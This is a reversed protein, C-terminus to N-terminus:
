ATGAAVMPSEPLGPSHGTHSQLTPNQLYFIEWGWPHPDWAGRSTPHSPSDGNATVMISFSAKRVPGAPSLSPMWTRCTRLVWNVELTPVPFQPPTRPLFLGPLNDYHIVTTPMPRGRDLKWLWLECWRGSSVTRAEPDWLVERWLLWLESFGSHYWLGGTQEHM